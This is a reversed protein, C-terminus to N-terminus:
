ALAGHGIEDFAGLSKGGAGMLADFVLALVTLLRIFHM